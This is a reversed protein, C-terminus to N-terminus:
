KDKDVWGIFVGFTNLQFFYYGFYHILDHKVLSFGM